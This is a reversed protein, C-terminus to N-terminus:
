GTPPRHPQVQVASRCCRGPPVPQVPVAQVAVPPVLSDAVPDSRAPEFARVPPRRRRTSRRHGAPLGRVARRVAEAIVRCMLTGSRIADDNGPIPYQVLDPDCNTDVVAVIPIGMKNAESVAIHEKKIDIIFVAEPLSAM